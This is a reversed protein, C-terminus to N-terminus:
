TDDAVGLSGQDMLAAILTLAPESRALAPDVTVIRNACIQEALVATDGACDFATGDVFLLNAGDDRAIFAFRAAPNRALPTGQALM